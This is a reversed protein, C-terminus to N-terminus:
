NSDGGCADKSDKPKPAHRRYVIVKTDGECHGIVKWDGPDSPDHVDLTNNAVHKAQRKADISAKLTECNAGAVM